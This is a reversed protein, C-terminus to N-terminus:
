CRRLVLGVFFGRTERQRDVHDRTPFRLLTPRQPMGDAVSASLQRYIALKTKSQLILLGGGCNATCKLEM